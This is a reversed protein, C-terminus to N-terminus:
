QHAHKTPPAAPRVHTDTKANSIAVARRIGTVARFYDIDYYVGHSALLVGRVRSQLLYQLSLVACSAAPTLACYDEVHAPCRWRVRGLQGMTLTLQSRSPACVGEQFVTSAQCSASPAGGTSVQAAQAGAEASSEAQVRM